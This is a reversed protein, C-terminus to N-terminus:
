GDRQVPDPTRPKKWPKWWRRRTWPELYVQGSSFNYGDTTSVTVEVKGELDVKDALHEPHTWILKSDRAQIRIPLPEEVPLPRALLLREGKVKSAFSVHSIRVEHTSRNTLNIAVIEQEIPEPRNMPDVPLVLIRRSPEVVVKTRITRRSMVIQNIGVITAIVAAYGAIVLTLIEDASM